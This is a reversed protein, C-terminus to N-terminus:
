RRRTATSIFANGMLARSGGDEFDLCCAFDVAHSSSESESVSDCVLTRTAVTSEKSGLCGKGWSSGRVGFRRDVIGFM